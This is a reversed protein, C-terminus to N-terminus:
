LLTLGAQCAPACMDAGAGGTLAAGSATVNTGSAVLLIKNGVTGPVLARVTTVAGASSAMVIKNLTTDANIAAALAASSLADSTAWTVTKATGAITGGVSGSSSAMTLTGSALVADSASYVVSLYPTGTYAGSSAANLMTRIAKVMDKISASGVGQDMPSKGFGSLTVTLSAM